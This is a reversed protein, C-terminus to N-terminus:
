SFRVCRTLPVARHEDPYIRVDMRAVRIRLRVPEQVEELAGLAGGPGILEVLDAHLAPHRVDRRGVVVAEVPRELQRRAVVVHDQALLDRRDEGLVVHVHVHHHEPEVLRHVALDYLEPVVDVLEGAVQGLLPQRVEHRVWEEIVLHPQEGELMELPQRQQKPPPLREAAAAALSRADQHVLEDGRERRLPDLLQGRPVLDLRQPVLRPALVVVGARVIVRPDIGARVVDLELGGVGRSLGNLVAEPSAREAEDARGPAHRAHSHLDEADAVLHDLLAPAVLDVLLDKDEEVADELLM